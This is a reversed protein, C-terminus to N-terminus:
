AAFQVTNPRQILENLRTVSVVAKGRYLTNELLSRVGNVEYVTAMKYVIIERWVADIDGVVIVLNASQWTYLVWSYVSYKM